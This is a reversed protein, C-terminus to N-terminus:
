EINADGVRLLSGQLAQAEGKRASSRYRRCVIIGAVLVATGAVFFGISVGLIVHMKSSKGSDGTATTTGPSATVSRTPTPGAWIPKRGCVSDIVQEVEIVVDKSKPFGTYNIASCIIPNYGSGRLHIKSLKACGAFADAAFISLSSSNGISIVELSSDGFCRSSVTRLTDPLLIDRLGARSFAEKGIAIVGPIAITTLSSCGSFTGNPITLNGQPLTVKALKVCNGFIDKGLSVNRGAEWSINVHTLSTCNEFASSGISTVAGSISISAIGSSAFCSNGFVSISLPLTIQALETCSRFMSEGIESLGEALTVNKLHVCGSFIGVGFDSTNTSQLVVSTLYSCNEFAGDDILAVSAPLIAQIIHSGVFASPYIKNVRTLDFAQLKDCGIFAYRGVSELPGSFSTLNQCHRFCHDGLDAKAVTVTRLSSCNQFTGEGTTMNDFIIETLGSNAFASNSITVHAKSSEGSYNFKTLRICGAFASDQINLSPHTPNIIEV